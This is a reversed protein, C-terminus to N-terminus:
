GSEGLGAETAPRMGWIGSRGSVLTVGEAENFRNAKMMACPEVIPKRPLALVTHLSLGVL